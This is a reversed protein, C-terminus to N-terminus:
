YFIWTAAHMDPPDAAPGSHRPRGALGPFSARGWWKPSFRARVCPSSERLSSAPCATLCMYGWGGPLVEGIEGGKLPRIKSHSQSLPDLPFLLSNAVWLSAAHADTPRSSALNLALHDRNSRPAEPGLLSRARPEPRAWLGAARNSHTATFRRDIFGTQVTSCSCM